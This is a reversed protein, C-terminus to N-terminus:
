VISKTKMCCKAFLRLSSCDPLDGFFLMFNNVGLRSYKQIERICDIPFGVLNLREFDKLPLNKPKWGMIKKDLEAQNEALFIQGGIWCSKEIEQFNRGALKCYEKLIKLKNKYVALTSLYGWDYRNAHEAVVRLTLKEGSGGIIIPPYPQQIPKPECVAEKIAYFKGQYNAKKEQWMSKIIEVSEKLKLIRDNSNPFPLGYAVHEEKQFGAGIGLELRGNSLVDLTAAMKALVAPNRFSNCLVMTGLRIKSTISSLASLTTWCELVPQKGYMLHDDLWVYDYGLQECELVLNKIRDFSLTDENRFRLAYFPLFVGFKLKNM